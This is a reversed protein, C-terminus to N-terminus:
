YKVQVLLSFLMIIIFNLMKSTPLFQERLINCLLCLLKQKGILLLADFCCLVFRKLLLALAYYIIFNWQIWHLHRLTKTNRKHIHGCSCRFGSFSRDVVESTGFVFNRTFIIQSRRDKLLILKKTSYM